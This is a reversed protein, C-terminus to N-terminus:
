VRYKTEDSKMWQLIKIRANTLLKTAYEIRNPAIHYIDKTMDLLALISRCIAMAEQQRSHRMAYYEEKSKPFIENAEVTLRVLNLAMNQLKYVATFRARKPFVKENDTIKMIYEAAERTVTIAILEGETRETKKVSM